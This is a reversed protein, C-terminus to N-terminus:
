GPKKAWFSCWGNPSIDGEVLQCSKPPRFFNCQACSQGKNPHDQYKATKQNTKGQAEATRSLGFSFTAGITVGAALMAFIERRSPCDICPRAPPYPM